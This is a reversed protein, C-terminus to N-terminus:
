SRRDRGQCCLSIGCLSVAMCVLVSSNRCVSVRVHTAMLVCVICTHIAMDRWRLKEAARQNKLVRDMGACMPDTKVVGDRQRWRWSGRLKRKNICATKHWSLFMMGIWVPLSDAPRGGAQLNMQNAWRRLLIFRNLRSAPTRCRMCASILATRSHTNALLIKVDPQKHQCSRAPHCAQHKVFTM